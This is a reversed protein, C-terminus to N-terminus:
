LIETMSSSQVSNGYTGPPASAARLWHPKM